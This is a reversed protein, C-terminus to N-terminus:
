AALAQLQQQVEHSVGRQMLATFLWGLNAPMPNPLAFRGGCHVGNYDRTWFRRIAGDSNANPNGPMAVIKDLLVLQDCAGELCDKFSGLVKSGGPEINRAGGPGPEVTIEQFRAWALWAVPAGLDQLRRYFTGTVDKVYGYRQRNDKTNIIRHAEDYMREAFTSGCDCVIASPKERGSKFAQEVKNLMSFAKDRLTSGPEDMWRIVPIEYGLVKCSEPGTTDFALILPMDGAKPWNVLTTALASKGMKPPSVVTVNPASMESRGTLTMGPIQFM